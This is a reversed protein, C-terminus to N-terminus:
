TVKTIIKDERDLISLLDEKGNLLLSHNRTYSKYLEIQCRLRDGM